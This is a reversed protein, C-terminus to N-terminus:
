ARKLNSARPWYTKSGVQVVYSEHLRSGVVTSSTTIKNAPMEAPPVVEIIHGTKVRWYGMSQSEWTVKDNLKM